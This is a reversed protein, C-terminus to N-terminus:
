SPTKIRSQKWSIGGLFSSKMLNCNGSHIGTDILSLQTVIFYAFQLSFQENTNHLM